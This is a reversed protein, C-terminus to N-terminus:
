FRFFSRTTITQYTLRWHGSRLHTFFTFISFTIRLRLLSPLLGSNPELLQAICLFTSPAIIPEDNKDDVDTLTFETVM